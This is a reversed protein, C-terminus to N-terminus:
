GLYEEIEKLIVLCTLEDAREAAEKLKVAQIGLEQLGYPGAYGKWQHAYKQILVFDLQGNLPMLVKVEAIRSVLFDSHFVEFGPLAVERQPNRIKRL